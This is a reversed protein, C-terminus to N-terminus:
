KSLEEAKQKEIMEKIEEVKIAGELWIVYFQLQELEEKHKILENKLVDIKEKTNM